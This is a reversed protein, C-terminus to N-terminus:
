VDLALRASLARSVCPYMVGAADNEADTAVSDLHLPTGATVRLECTGCVGTRCSGTVPAGADELVDLISRDAPVRVSGVGAMEVEVPQAFIGAARNAAVFREVHLREAPVALTLEDMLQAPGCCYVQATSVSVAAATPYRGAQENGAHVTVRGPYQAELESVFPMSRRTSGLYILSWQRSAPLAAIMPLLPTIGIGGAIFLYDTAPQLEFHNRTTSVEVKEGVYLREHIFQSGGASNEVLRIAIDFGHRDAPDGCLSYHRDLGCALHLTIHSGPTWVPLNGGDERELRLGIVGDALPTRGVVVMRMRPSGRETNGARAAGRQAAVTGIIQRVVVALATVVILATSVVIYWWAGRDSGALAAHFTVLVVVAYSLYHLGKWVRRPLRSIALSSLAIAALLYLAVIGLAVPLPKFESAFPVLAAAITFGSHDRLFPDLLLSGVHMLTMLIAIGSLYRHLDKLWAPNDAARLVRTSLLVGWLVTATLLVWAVIASARSVYWWFQPDIM